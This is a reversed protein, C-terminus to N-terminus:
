AIPRKGAVVLAGLALAGLVLVAAAGPGMAPVGESVLQNVTVNFSCTSMNGDDDTASCNVRTTGFPFVSGSAPSCVVTPTPDCIDTATAAFTVAIPTFASLVINSPCHISPPTTDVVQLAFSCQSQNGMADTATCTVTTPGHPFESGSPPTCFVSPSPDCNDNASVAFSAITSAGQCEAFVSPPCDIVPPEGDQMVTVSFSCQVFNGASDEATCTVLSTGLPFQAGSPPSFQVPVVGDCVDTATAAFSVPAGEETACDVVVNSPCDITPPTTDAITVTFFCTSANGADDIATCEVKFIGPPFLTDSPPEFLITPDPDCDDTAVADYAVPTGDPGACPVTIDVPCSVEPPTTDEILIEFTCSAENGSADTAKCTVTNSGVSFSSGSPPDFAIVPAPDVLDTASAAYSAQTGSTGACPLSENSPCDLDPPTTDQVTVSFTMPAASNGQADTATCTVTTMGLPFLSGSPPTCEPVVNPDCGDTATVEFTVTAGDPGTAEVELPAPAHIDPPMTDVATVSFTCNDVLGEDDMATCTVVTPVNLPFAGQGATGGPPPVYTITPNPDCADAAVAAFAVATGCEVTTNPPCTITPPTTDVVTFAFSCQGVNGKSDTASCTVTYPGGKPFFGAGPVCTAPLVGDCDDFATANFFVNAGGPLNCEVAAPPPNCFVQPPDTDPILTFTFQYVSQRGCEDTATCTVTHIGPPVFTGSPPVCVVQPNPDCDDVATPCDYLLVSGLPSTCTFVESQPLPGVFTPAAGDVCVTFSCQTTNGACDAASCTVLHNGPTLFSGSPPNCVLSPDPDCDDSASVPYNVIGGAPGLCATYNACGHILPPTTDTLDWIYASGSASGKDDDLYAGIIAYGQTLGLSFGAADLGFKDSAVLKARQTWVGDLEFSYSSGADFFGSPDEGPAGVLARPCPGQSDLAVARGFNDNAAADSAVLLAEQSWTSGSRVFVYAAGSDTAVGDRDWAGVLARELSASVAFGFQDGAAADSATLKAQQSWTTGTRVFVYASGSGTGADDDQPVGIALTNGSISVSFGFQDGAAADSATLKAQQVWNTGSRVFVYASGSSSGADDNLSAGVVATDGHVDVVQGFFDLAAGDGAVFKDQLSWTSGNRVFVYVSGSNTGLEDDSAAGVVVTNGSVAVATGFQDSAAADPATLKAQQNWISGSRVFVYVSGTDAAVGDDFRAAVVATTGDIDSAIGFNDGAAGDGATLKAQEVACLPDITLPYCANEDDVQIRLLDDQVSLRAQLERGRADWARLGTYEFASSGAASVFRVGRESADLIPFLRGRWRLEVVVPAGPDTPIPRRELTFGQELGDPRNAYWEVLGPRHFEARTGDLRQRGREVPELQGERGWHAWELSLGDPEASGAIWLRLRDGSHEFCLADPLTGRFGEDQAVLDLGDVRASPGTPGAGFSLFGATLLACHWQLLPRQSSTLLAM